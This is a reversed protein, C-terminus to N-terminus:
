PQFGATNRTIYVEDATTVTSTQIHRLAALFTFDQLFFKLAMGGLKM